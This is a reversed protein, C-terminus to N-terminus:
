CLLLLRKGVYDRYTGYAFLNLLQFYAANSGEALQIPLFSVNCLIPLVVRFPVKELSHSFDACFKLLFAITDWAPGKRGLAELAPFKLLKLTLIIWGNRHM